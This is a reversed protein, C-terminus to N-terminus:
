SNLADLQNQRDSIEGALRVIESQRKEEAERTLRESRATETESPIATFFRNGKGQIPRVTDGDFGMKKGLTAWAANAREQTSPATYSGIMMLPSSKCAELLAKLDTETMEYETRPYM